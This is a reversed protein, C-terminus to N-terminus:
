NNNSFSFSEVINITGDGMMKKIYIDKMVDGYEDFTTNGTVGVFNKIKYLEDKVLETHFGTQQLCYILINMVDYGLGAELNPMKDYQRMYDNVFSQVEPLKSGIDYAATSYLISDFAGKAVSIFANNEFALNGTIPVNIQYSRIQKVFYGNEAPNGVLYIVDPNAEKIKIAMSKFDTTGPLFSEKYVVSGGLNYYEKEFANIVGIGYDGNIYILSARKKEIRSYLYNAMIKGDFEDSLYDRFIYDGADRIFPNSAGPSIMVIKNREAIPAGALFVDSSMDGIVIKVKDQYILKNLASVGDKSNSKSDEIILKIKYNTDVCSSNYKLLALEIGELMNKGPESLTGTQPMIVGIVINNSSNNCGTIFLFILAIILFLKQILKKSVSVM